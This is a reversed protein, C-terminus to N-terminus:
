DKFKDHINFIGGMERRNKQDGNRLQTVGIEEVAHHEQVVVIGFTGETPHEIM